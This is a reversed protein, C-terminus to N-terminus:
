NNINSKIPICFWNTRRVFPGAVSPSTFNRVRSTNRLIATAAALILLFLFCNFLIIICGDTAAHEDASNVAAYQLTIIGVINATYTPTHAPRVIERVRRYLLTTFMAPSSRYRPVISLHLVGRFRRWIRM